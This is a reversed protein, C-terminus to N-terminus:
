VRFSRRVRVRVRVRISQRPCLVAAPPLATGEVRGDGWRGESKEELSERASTLKLGVRVRVKVRGRVRVYVCM